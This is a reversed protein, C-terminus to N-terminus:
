PRLSCHKWWYTLMADVGEGITEPGAISDCWLYCRSKTDLAVFGAADDAESLMLVGEPVTKFIYAFPSSAVDCWREVPLFRFYSHRADLDAWLQFGNARLLFERLDDPLPFEAFRQQWRDLDGPAMGREILHGYRFVRRETRRDPHKLFEVLPVPRGGNLLALAAPGPVSVERELVVPTQMVALQLFEEATMSVGTLTRGVNWTLPPRRM